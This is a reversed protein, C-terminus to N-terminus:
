RAWIRRLWFYLGVLLWFQIGAFVWIGLATLVFNQWFGQPNFVLRALINVWVPILCVAIARITKFVRSGESMVGIGGNGQGEM